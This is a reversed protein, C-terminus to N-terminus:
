PTKKAKTARMRCLYLPTFVFSYCHIALWPLYFKVKSFVDGVQSEDADSPETIAAKGNSKSKKKPPPRAQKLAVKKPRKSWFKDGKQLPMKIILIM